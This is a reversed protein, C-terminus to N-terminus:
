IENGNIKKFENTTTSNVQHPKEEQKLTTMVERAIMLEENTPM